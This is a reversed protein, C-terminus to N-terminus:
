ILVPTINLVRTSPVGLEDHIGDARSKQFQFPQRGAACERLELANKKKAQIFELRV